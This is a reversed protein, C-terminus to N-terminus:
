WFADRNSPIDDNGGDRLSHVNSGWRRRVVM